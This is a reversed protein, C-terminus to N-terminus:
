INMRMDNVYRVFINKFVSKTTLIEIQVSVYLRKM